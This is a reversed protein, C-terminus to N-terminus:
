PSIFYTVTLEFNEFRSMCHDNNFAGDGEKYPRLLFGYNPEGNEVWRKVAETVDVSYTTMSPSLSDYPESTAAGTLFNITAACSLFGSYADGRIASGPQTHFGLQAKWVPSKVGGLDFKVQGRSWLGFHQWCYFPLSGEDYYNGFGVDVDKLPGSPGSGTGTGTGSFDPGGFIKTGVDGMFDGIKCSLDTNHHESPHDEEKIVPDRLTVTKTVVGPGSFVYSNSDASDLSTYFARVTYISPPGDLTGAPFVLMSQNRDKITRFLVTTTGTTKYIRFGDTDKIYDSCKIKSGAVPFICAPIWDWVLVTAGTSLASSCIIEALPDGFGSHGKCTTLSTTRAFNFPPMILPSISFMLKPSLKGLVMSALLDFRTGQLAFDTKTDVTSLTKSVTGLDMLTGGSWGWCNLALRIDGTSTNSPLMGFASALDFVGDKPLIFDNAPAPLRAWPSDGIAYYCYLKEVPQTVTLDAKQIQLGSWASTQCAPDELDAAALNSSTEGATNFASVFYEVHGALGADTYQISEGSGPGLTAVRHFDSTNADLRYVFFGDRDKAPDSLRLIVSCGAPQISLGPAAPAKVTSFRNLLINKIWFSFRSPPLGAAGAPGGSSPPAVAPALVTPPVAAGPTGAIAFVRVLNSSATRQDSDVARVVLIHEGASAPVWTWFTSFRQMSSNSPAVRTEFKVGDVWLELAAMPRGGIATAAVTTFTQVSVTAGYAPKTLSVTLDIGDPPLAEEVSPIQFIGFGVLAVLIMGSILSGIRLLRAKM